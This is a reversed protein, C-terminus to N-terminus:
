HVRRSSEGSRLGAAEMEVWDEFSMSDPIIGEQKLKDYQGKCMDKAADELLKIIMKEADFDSVDTKEGNFDVVELCREDLAIAKLIHRIAHEIPAFAIMDGEYDSATRGEPLVVRAGFTGKKLDITYLEVGITHPTPMTKVDKTDTM